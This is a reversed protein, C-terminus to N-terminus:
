ADVVFPVGYWRVRILQVRQTGYGQLLVSVEDSTLVTPLSLNAALTALQERGIQPDPPVSEDHLAMELARELVLAPQAIVQRLFQHQDAFGLRQFIGVEELCAVLQGLRYARASPHDPSTHQALADTTNM